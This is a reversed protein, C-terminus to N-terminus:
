TGDYGRAVSRRDLFGTVDTTHKKPQTVKWFPPPLLEPVATPFNKFM